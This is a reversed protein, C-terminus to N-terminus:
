LKILILEGPQAAAKFSLTGSRKEEFGCLRSLGMTENSRGSTRSEDRLVPCMYGKKKSDWEQQGV